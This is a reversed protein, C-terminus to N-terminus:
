PLALVAGLIEFDYIDPVYALAGLVIVCAMFVKCQLTKRAGMMSEEAVGTTLYLNDIWRKLM